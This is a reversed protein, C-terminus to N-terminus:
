QSNIIAMCDINVNMLIKPDWDTENEKNNQIVNSPTPSTVSWVIKKRNQKNKFCIQSNNIKFSFVSNCIAGYLNFATSLTHLM